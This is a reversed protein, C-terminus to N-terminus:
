SPRGCASTPRPACNIDGVTSFCSAHGYRKRRIAERPDAIIERDVEDVGSVRGIVGIPRQPGSFVDDVEQRSRPREIGRLDRADASLDYRSIFRLSEERECEPEARRDGICQVCDFRPM